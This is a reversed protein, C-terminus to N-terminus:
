LIVSGSRSHLERNRVSEDSGEVLSSTINQSKRTGPASGFTEDSVRVTVVAM